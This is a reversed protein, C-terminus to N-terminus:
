QRYSERLRSRLIKGAANRPLDTVFDVSRPTKFGALNQRCYDILQVASVDAGSRRVVVAKIAEGWKPDLVGIVAAQDIDPHLVLVDEIERPYINEGGSIIVDDARDGLYVYNDANIMGCDGTRLFRNGDLQFDGDGDLKWYKKMLQPGAAIIDGQQCCPLEQRNGDVVRIEVGPLPQGASRLLETKGELAMRHDEPKLWTLCLTETSGYRQAFDCQFVSIAERLTAEAMPSGGYIILRLNTFRRNAIDAVDTLCTQIMTPAMMAVSVDQADLAEVVDCPIFGTQILLSAGGAVTHLMVIIGAAHFLPMVMLFRDTARFQMVQELQTICAAIAGHTLVVGRPKGTTGSTYIQLAEHEDSFSVQPQNAPRGSIWDEFRNWGPLADGVVICERVTSLEDRFRDVDLAFEQDCVLLSAEANDCIERWECPMLRHSIPTPVVGAKFAGFYLIVVEVSNKMITAIRDGPRLGAAVLSGAVRNAAELAEGYTLRRRACAAFEADPHRNAHSDLYDFAMM